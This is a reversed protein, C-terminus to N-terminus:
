KKTAGKKEKKVVELPNADRYAKVFGVRKWFQKEYAHIYTYYSLMVDSLPYANDKMAWCAYFFPKGGKTAHVHLGQGVNGSGAIHGATYWYGSPGQFWCIRTDIFKQFDEEPIVKSLALRALNEPNHREDGGILRHSKPVGIGRVAVGYLRIGECYACQCGDVPPPKLEAEKIGHVTFKTM